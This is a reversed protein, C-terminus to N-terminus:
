NVWIWGNVGAERSLAFSIFDDRLILLCTYISLSLISKQMCIKRFGAMLAM